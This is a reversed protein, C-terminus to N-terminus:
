GSGEILRRYPAQMQDMSERSLARLQNRHGTSERHERVWADYARVGILEVDDLPACDAGAAWFPTNLESM